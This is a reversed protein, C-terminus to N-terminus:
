CSNERRLYVMVIDGEEFVKERMEKDAIVKYKANYKELRLRVSEQVDIIQEAMARVANSFKERIPLTTSDLLHHPVKRYVIAIHSMGTSGHVISNYSVGSSAFSSGM